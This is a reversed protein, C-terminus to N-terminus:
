IDEAQYCIEMLMCLATAYIKTLYMMNMAVFEVWEQPINGPEKHSVQLGAFSFYKDSSIAKCSILDIRMVHTMNYMTNLM